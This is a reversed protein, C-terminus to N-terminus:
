SMNFIRDELQEIKDIARQLAGYMAAIIQDTNLDLCQDIQEGAATIFTKETVAKPFHERVEQAIWGLKTRDAVTEHSYVDEKWRYHRLPIDKVIDWCRILDADKIETKLREDSAVAWTSTAPKAASDTSLQLQYSPSSTGIGVRATDTRVTLTNQNVWVGATGNYTLTAGNQLSTILVDHIEDLEYGNQPKVYIQGNGANAREVIGVFVLHNPQVPKTRTFTGATSGLWLIDGEVFPSGLNLGDIVGQTIVLGTQNAAITEAVIGFTKNSTADSTNSARKVTGRSGSAGFLYVVEGRLLTTAEANRVKAYLQEGIFARVNGGQLGLEASGETSNWRLRGVAATPTAATDIQLYDLNAGTTNIEGGDSLIANSNQLITGSTGDFRVIANDTSVNPGNVTGTGVPGQPGTNAISIVNIGGNVDVVTYSETVAIEHDSNIEIITYSEVPEVTTM